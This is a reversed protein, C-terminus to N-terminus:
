MRRPDPSLSHSAQTTRARPREHDEILHRSPNHDESPKGPASADVELTIREYLQYNPAQRLRPPTLEERRLQRQLAAQNLEHCTALKGAHLM